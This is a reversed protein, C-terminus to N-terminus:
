IYERSDHESEIIELAHKVIKQFVEENGEVASGIVDSVGSVGFMSEVEKIVGSIIASGVLIGAEREDPLEVVLYADDKSNKVKVLMSLGVIEFGRSEVTKKAKKIASNLADVRKSM